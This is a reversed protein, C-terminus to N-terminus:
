QVGATGTRKSLDGIWLTNADVVKMDPESPLMYLYGFVQGGPGVVSFLDPGENRFINISGILDSLQKEDKVSVWFQQLTLKRGDGKPDFLIANVRDADVGAYSVNYDKWHKQLYDITMDSRPDALRARDGSEACGLFSTVLFVTILYLFIRKAKAM